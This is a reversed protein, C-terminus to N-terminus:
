GHSCNEMLMLRHWIKQFLNSTRTKELLLSPFKKLPWMSMKKLIMVKLAKSRLKMRLTKMTSKLCVRALPPSGGGDVCFHQRCRASPLVEVGKGM